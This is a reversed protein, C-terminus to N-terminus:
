RLEFLTDGCYERFYYTELSQDLTDYDKMNKSILMDNIMGFRSRAYEPDVDACQLNGSETLQEEGGIEETIYYQLTEGCFLVFEKCCVGGFVDRMNEALYEKEGGDEEMIVYHIRAHGGPRSRYEVIVKDALEGILHQQLKLNKFFGFHIKDAMMERLFSEIQENVNKDIENANEAYYKLFALKCVRPIEVDWKADELIAKFIFSDLVKERVFYDYCSQILYAKTVSTANSTRYYDTFIENKEGVHSGTYLLQILIKEELDSCDLGDEKMKKWINRLEKTSGEAFRGLYAMVSVNTKGRYFLYLAAYYLTPDYEEQGRLLSGLLRQLTNADPFYPGYKDIWSLAHDYKERLVMYKLVEMRQTPNLDLEDVDELLDDLRETSDKEYFQRMLKLTLKIRLDPEIYKWRCLRSAREALNDDFQDQDAKERVLWLDFEPCGTDYKMLEQVYKAPLMFKELEHPLDESFCNKYADEFVITCESGYLPVLTESDTLPYERGVTSGPVYVIAKRIRSDGVKIRTTFLVRMMSAANDKTIMGPELLKEYLKALHRDIRENEIQEMVFDRCRSLYKEYVEAYLVKNDLVLDYLFASREYDLNNQFSFYLVVAKPLGKKVKPDVCNMYSEYLNTIRLQSEIGREYWELAGEGTVGGKVLLTCMEKVIRSYKRKEYLKELIRCLLPSYDKNKELLELFREALETSFYDRRVGYYLIQQEFVGLERLIAPNNNYLQLAEIYLVFSTCGREFQRKLFDLKEDPYTSYEESLYLLLWAIRWSDPNQKHLREVEAAVQRIQEEDRSVLTTLYLYYAYLEDGAGGREDMMDSAYSLLWNAENQRDQTILLQAKFLRAAPDKDDLSILQEVLAGTDKLWNALGTKKMRFNEYQSMLAVITRNKMQTNQNLSLGMGLKVKVEVEINVYSNYLVVKAINTGSKLYGRDIYLPIRAYNGIFDEETLTSKETFLFEGDCEVDLLTYGWGNRVVTLEQETLQYEGDVPLIELSISAPEARFEVGQKKGIHILFEEMNQEQGDHASLGKYVSLYQADAGSFVKKFEPSYFLAVAEQWNSKALNTFHFLTKVPGISTMIVSSNCTVVFPLSYEGQNSVIRFAGKLCEGEEIGDGYIEYRIESDRGAFEPNLCIMRYDTSYVRGSVMSGQRGRIRFSGEAQGNRELEVEVKACSFDLSGNERMYNGDLIADIIERM